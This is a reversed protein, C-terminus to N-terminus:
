FSVELRSEKRTTDKLTYELVRVMKGKVKGHSLLDEM